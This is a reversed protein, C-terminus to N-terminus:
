CGEFDENNLADAITRNAWLIAVYSLNSYSPRDTALANGGFRVAYYHDYCAGSLPRIAHYELRFGVLTLPNLM